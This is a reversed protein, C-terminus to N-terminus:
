KENKNPTISWVMKITHCLEEFDRFNFKQQANKSDYVIVCGNQTIGHLVIFHSQEKSLHKSDEIGYYSKNNVLAMILGGAKIAELIQYPNSVHGFKQGMLEAIAPVFTHYTGNPILTRKGEESFDARVSILGNQDAIEKFDEAFFRKGEPYYFGGFYNAIVAACYFACGNEEMTGIGCPIHSGKVGWECKDELIVTPTEYKQYDLASFDIYMCVDKFHGACNANELNFKDYANGQMGVKYINM